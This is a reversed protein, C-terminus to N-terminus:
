YLLQSPQHIHMHRTYANVPTHAGGPARAQRAEVATDRRTHKRGWCLARREVEGGFVNGGPGWEPTRLMAM